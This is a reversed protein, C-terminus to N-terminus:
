GRVVTYIFLYATGSHVNEDLEHMNSGDDGSDYFAAVLINFHGVEIVVRVTQKSYKHTNKITAKQLCVHMLMM